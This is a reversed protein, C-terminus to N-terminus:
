FIELPEIHCLFTPSGILAPRAGTRQRPRPRTRTVTSSCTCEVHGVHLRTGDRKGGRGVDRVRVVSARVVPVRVVPVRLIPLIGVTVRVFPVSLVPVRLLREVNM